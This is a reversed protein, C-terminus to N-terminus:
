AYPRDRWVQSPDRWVQLHTERRPPQVGLVDAEAGLMDSATAVLEHTQRLTGTAKGNVTEINMLPGYWGSQEPWHRVSLGTYQSPQNGEHIPYQCTEELMRGAGSGSEGSGAEDAICSRSAYDTSEASIGLGALDSGCAMRSFQWFMASQSGTGHLKTDIFPDKVKGSASKAHCMIRMDWGPDPAYAEDVLFMRDDTNLGAWLDAPQSGAACEAAATTAVFDTVLVLVFFM